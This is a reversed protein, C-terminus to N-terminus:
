LNYFNTLFDKLRGIAVIDKQIKFRHLLEFLIEDDSYDDISHEEKDDESKMGLNWSAYEEIDYDDVYELIDVDNFDEESKDDFIIKVPKKM